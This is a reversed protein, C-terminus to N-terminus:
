DTVDDLYTTKNIERSSSMQNVIPVTSSKRWLPITLSLINDVLIVLLDPLTVSNYFSTEKKLMESREIPVVLLFFLIM